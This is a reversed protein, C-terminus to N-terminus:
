RVKVMLKGGLPPKYKDVAESWPLNADEPEPRPFVGGFLTRLSEPRDSDSDM